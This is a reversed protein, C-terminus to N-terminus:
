QRPVELLLLEPQSLRSAVFRTFGSALFGDLLRHDGSFSYPLIPRPVVSDGVVWPRQKIPGFGMIGVQPARILPAAFRSARLSGYNTVTFTADSYDRHSLRGTRATDTLRGIEDNIAMFGLRDANRVVPVILGESTAVAFGVNCHANLVIEGAGWDLSANIYPHHQLGRAVALVFFSMLTISADPLEDRLHQLTEILKSADLEDMSTMHPISSWSESLAVAGSRRVGRLPVRQDVQPQENVSETETVAGSEISPASTAASHAAFEVDNMTIRGSPGSGSLSELVIGLEKARRRIAPGAKARGSGSQVPSEIEPAEVVPPGESTVDEFTALVAGVKVIGGVDCHHRVLVGEVPSPIEVTAKDTQVEVFAEDLTVTSGERVLWAVVEAEDLGEGLDPMIFEYTM